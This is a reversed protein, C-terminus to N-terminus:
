NLELRGFRGGESDEDKWGESYATFSCRGRGPEARHATRGKSFSVDGEVVFDNLEEFSYRSKLYLVLSVFNPIDPEATM